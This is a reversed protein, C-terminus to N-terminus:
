LGFRRAVSPYIFKATIYHMYYISGIYCCALQVNAALSIGCKHDTNMEVFAAFLHGSM